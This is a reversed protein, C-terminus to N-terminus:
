DLDMGEADRAGSEASIAQQTCDLPRPEKGDTLESTDTEMEDRSKIIRKAVNIESEKRRKTLAAKHGGSADMMEMVEIDTRKGHQNLHTPDADRSLRKSGPKEFKKDHKTHSKWGLRKMGVALEDDTDPWLLKKLNPKTSDQEFDSEPEEVENPRIVEVDGDYGIDEQSLSGVSISARSSQRSRKGNRVTKPSIPPSELM